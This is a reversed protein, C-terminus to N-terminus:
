SNKASGYSREVIAREAKAAEICSEFNLHHGSLGSMQKIYNDLGANKLIREAVSSNLIVFLSQILQTILMAERDITQFMRENGFVTLEYSTTRLSDQLRREVYFTTMKEDVYIM